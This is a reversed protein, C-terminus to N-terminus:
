GWSTRALSPSSCSWRRVAAGRNYSGRTLPDPDAKKPTPRAHFRSSAVDLKSREDRVHRADDVPAREVAVPRHGHDAILDLADGAVRRRIEDLVAYAGEGADDVRVVLVVDLALYRRRDRLITRVPELVPDDAGVSCDRPHELATLTDPGVVIGGREVAHDEVDGLAPACSVRWRCSISCALIASSFAERALIM